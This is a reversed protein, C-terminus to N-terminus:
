ETRFLIEVYDYPYNAPPRPLISVSRAARMVTEDFAANGSGSLKTRRVVRGDKRLYVRVVAKLGSVGAPPNWRAYFIPGVKQLYAGFDSSTSPAAAASTALGALAKRVDAATLAPTKPAGGVRKGIKIRKPDVPKWKPKAPKKPAPKPKPKKPKPKPLPKKPKPKPLPKPKPKVPEPVPTPEPEPSVPEPTPEPEAPSAQLAPAPAPESFEVFTVIEKRKPRFCGHLASFAVLLGVLAFHAGWVRLAIKRRYTKM